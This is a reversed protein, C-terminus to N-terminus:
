LFEGSKVLRLSVGATAWSFTTRGGEVYVALVDSFFYRLGIIPGFVLVKDNVEQNPFDDDYHWNRFEVGFLVSGYLDLLKSDFGTEVWDNLKDSAHYTARGGVAYANFRGQRNGLFNYARTYLGVYPGFAFNNDYSYEAVLSLPPMNGVSGEGYRQGIIGLGAGLHGWIRGNKYKRRFQAQSEHFSTLCLLLSLSFLFWRM